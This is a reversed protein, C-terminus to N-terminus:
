ELPFKGWKKGRSYNQISKKLEDLKYMKNPVLIGKVYLNFIKM